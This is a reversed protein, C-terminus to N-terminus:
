RSVMYVAVAAAVTWLNSALWILLNGAIDLSKVVVAIIAKVAPPLEKSASNTTDAAKAITNAGKELLKRCLIGIATAAAAVGVLAAALPIKKELAWDRLRKVRKMENKYIDTILGKKKVWYLIRDIEERESEGPRRSSEFLEEGIQIVITARWRAYYSADDDDSNSRRRLLEEVYEVEEKIDSREGSSESEETRRNLASIRTDLENTDMENYDPYRTALKEMKQEDYDGYDEM